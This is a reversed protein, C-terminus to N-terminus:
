SSVERLNVSQLVNQWNSNINPSEPSEEKLEALLALMDYWIGAQGYQSVNELDSDLENLLLEVQHDEIRQVWGSVFPSDPRLRASCPVAIGWEYNKGVDLPPAEKPMEITIIGGEEQIPLFTEYISQGQEDRLNFFISGTPVSPMYVVFTPHSQTTLGYNSQPILATLSSNTAETQLCSSDRAAGGRTESPADGNPPVFTVQVTGDGISVTASDNPLPSADVESSLLSGGVIGGLLLLTTMSTRAMNQLDIRKASLQHRMIQAHLSHELSNIVDDIQM